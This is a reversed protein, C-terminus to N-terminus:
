RRLNELQDYGMDLADHLINIAMATKNAHADYPIVQQSTNITTTTDITYEIDLSSAQPKKIRSNRGKRTTKLKSKQQRKKGQTGQTKTVQTSTPIFRLYSSDIINKLKYVIVYM